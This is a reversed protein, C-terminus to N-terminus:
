DNRLRAELDAMEMGCGACVVLMTDSDPQEVIEFHVSLCNTCFRGYNQETKRETKPKFELVDTM